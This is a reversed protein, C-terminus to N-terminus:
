ADDSLTEALGPGGRSRAAPSPPSGTSFKLKERFFRSRGPLISMKESAAAGEGFRRFRGPLIPVKASFNVGERFRHSRGPLGREKGSARLNERWRRSKMARALREGNEALDGRSVGGKSVYPAIDARFEKTRRERRFEV